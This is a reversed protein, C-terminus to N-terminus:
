AGFVSELFRNMLTSAAPSERTRERLEDFTTGAVEEVYKPYRQLRTLLHEGTLEPHFQTAYMPKGEIRYAQNPTRESFALRVAGPPLAVVHDEHGLQATFPSGLAGFVPDARGESTLTLDYTGVEAQGIDHIVEGGLARALAQFGWCSAFTPISQDHLLRMFDLARPLWGGGTAVSYEGAGGILVVDYSRILSESIDDNILDVARLNSAECGITETFCCIEHERMPDNPSRVQLLLFRVARMVRTYRNRDRWHETNRRGVDTAAPPVPVITPDPKETARDSAGACGSDRALDISTPAANSRDGSGALRHMFPNL